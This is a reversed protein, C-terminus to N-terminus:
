KTNVALTCQMAAKAYIDGALKVPLGARKAARKMAKDEDEDPNRFLEEKVGAAVEIEYQSCDEFLFNGAKDFVGEYTKPSDGRKPATARAQAGAFDIVNPMDDCFGMATGNSTMLTGDDRLFWEPARGLNVFQGDGLLELTEADLMAVSPQKSAECRAPDLFGGARSCKAKLM